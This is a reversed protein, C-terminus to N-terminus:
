DATAEGEKNLADVKGLTRAARAIPNNNTNPAAAPVPAPKATTAALGRRWYVWLGLTLAAAILFCVIFISFGPGGARIPKFTPQMTPVENPDRKTNQTTARRLADNILSMSCCKRGIRPYRPRRHPLRDARKACGDCRPLM